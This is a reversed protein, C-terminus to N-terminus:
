VGEWFKVLENGFLFLLLNNWISDVVEVGLISLPKFLFIVLLCLFIIDFYIWHGFIWFWNLSTFIISWGLWWYDNWWNLYGFLWHKVIFILLCCGAGSNNVLFPFGIECNPSGDSFICNLWDLCKWIFRLVALSNLLPLTGNCTPRGRIEIFRLVWGVFYTFLYINTDFIVSDQYDILIKYVEFCTFIAVLVLWGFIWWIFSM